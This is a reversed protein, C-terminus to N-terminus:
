APHQQQALQELEDLVEKIEAARDGAPQAEESSMCVPVAPRLGINARRLGLPMTVPAFAATLSLLVAMCASLLVFKAFSLM